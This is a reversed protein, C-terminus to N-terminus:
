MITWVKWFVHVWFLNKSFRRGFVYNWLKYYIELSYDYCKFKCTWRECICNKRWVMSTWNNHWFKQFNEIAEFPRITIHKLQWDVGLFIVVNSSFCWSGGVEIDMFSLQCYYIFVNCFQFFMFKNRKNVLSHLVGEFCQKCLPFDCLFYNCQWFTWDYMKWLNVLYIIKWLLFTLVKQFNNKSCLM